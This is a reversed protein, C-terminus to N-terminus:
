WAVIQIAAWYVKTLYFHNKLNMIRVCIGVNDERTTKMGIRTYCGTSYNEELVPDEQGRVILM